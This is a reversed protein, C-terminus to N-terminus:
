AINDMMYDELMHWKTYENTFLIYDATLFNRQPNGINLADNKIKRGLSKIPTGHWTNM